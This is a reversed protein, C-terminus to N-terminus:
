FSFGSMCFIQCLSSRFFLHDSLSFIQFFSSRVFLHDAFLLDSFPLGSSFIEGLSSFLLSLSSRFFSPRVFFLLDSLSSVPYLSSWIFLLGAIQYLPYLRGNVAQASSPWACTPHPAEKGVKFTIATVQERQMFCSINLLGQKRLNWSRVM